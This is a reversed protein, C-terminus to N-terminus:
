GLPRDKIYFIIKNARVFLVLLRLSPMTSILRPITHELLAEREMWDMRATEPPQHRILAAGCCHLYGASLRAIDHLPLYIHVHQSQTM